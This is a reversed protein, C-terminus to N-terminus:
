APLPADCEHSHDHLEGIAQQHAHYAVVHADYQGKIFYRYFEADSRDEATTNSKSFFLFTIVALTAAWLMTGLM